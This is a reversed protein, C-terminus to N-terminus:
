GPSHEEDRKGKVFAALLYHTIEELRRYSLRLRDELAKQDIEAKLFREHFHRVAYWYCGHWCPVTADVVDCDAFGVERALARYAAPGELYNAERRYPKTREAERSVLIDTILLRGGPKLVRVAEALFRRRTDFHFAAEVCFLYDFSEDEFRLEVADMLEFRCGPANKRATDLQKESINIGVVEGSPFRDFLYRTTAGKGCAVDLVRGSRKPVRKLLEEMLNECAEKQNATDDRWYGFNTFDSHAFYERHDDDYMLADYRRVIDWGDADPSTFARLSM